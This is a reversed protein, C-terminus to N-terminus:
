QAMVDEASLEGTDPDVFFRVSVTLPPMEYSGKTVQFTQTLEYCVGEEITKTEVECETDLIYETPVRKRQIVQSEIDSISYDGTEPDQEVQFVASCTFKMDCLDYTREATTEVGIWGDELREVKAQSSRWVLFGILLVAALIVCLIMVFAKKKM